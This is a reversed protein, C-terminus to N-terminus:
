TEASTATGASLECLPGAAAAPEADAREPGRAGPQEVVNPADAVGLASFWPEKDTSCSLCTGVRGRNELHAGDGARGLGAKWVLGRPSLFGRASWTLRRPPSCSWAPIPIRLPFSLWNGLTLPECTDQSGDRGEQCSGARRRGDAALPGPPAPRSVSLVVPDVAGQLQEAGREPPPRSPPSHLHPAGPALGEWPSRRPGELPLDKLAQCLARTPLENRSPGELGATKPDWTDTMSSPTPEQSFFVALCGVGDQAAGGGGGGRM